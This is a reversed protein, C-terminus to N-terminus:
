QALTPIKKGRRQVGPVALAEDTSHTIQREAWGQLVDNGMQRLEDIVKQEAADARKMDGGADTVVALLNIMRAKLEPHANLQELLLQDSQDPSPM